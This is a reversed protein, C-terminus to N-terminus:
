LCSYNDLTESLNWCKGPPPDLKELPILISIEISVSIVQSIELSDPSGIGVEPDTCSQTLIPYTKSVWCVCDRPGDDFSGKSLPIANQQPASTPVTKYTLYNVPFQYAFKVVFLHSLYQSKNLLEELSYVFSRGRTLLM